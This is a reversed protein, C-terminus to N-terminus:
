QMKNLKKKNPNWYALYLLVQNHAFKGTKDQPEDLYNTAHSLKLAKIHQLSDLSGLVFRYM